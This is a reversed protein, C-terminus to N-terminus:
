YRMYNKQILIIILIEDRVFSHRIEDGLEAVAINEATLTNVETDWDIKVSSNLNSFIYLITYFLLELPSYSM